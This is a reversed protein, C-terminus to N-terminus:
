SSCASTEKEGKKHMGQKVIDRNERIFQIDLM